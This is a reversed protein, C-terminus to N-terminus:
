GVIKNNKGPGDFTLELTNDAFAFCEGLFIFVMVPFFRIGRMRGKTLCETYEAFLFVQPFM